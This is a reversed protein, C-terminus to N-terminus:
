LRSWVRRSLLGGRRSIACRESPGSHYAASASLKPQGATSAETRRGAGGVCAERNTSTRYRAGRAVVKGRREAKETRRRPYELCCDGFGVGWHNCSRATAM